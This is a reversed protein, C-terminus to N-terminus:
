AKGKGKGYVTNQYQSEQGKEACPQIKLSDLNQECLTNNIPNTNNECFLFIM